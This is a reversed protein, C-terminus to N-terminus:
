VIVNRVKFINVCKVIKIALLVEVYGSKESARPSQVPLIRIELM